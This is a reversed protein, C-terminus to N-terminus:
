SRRLRKKSLRCQLEELTPGALTIRKKDEEKLAKKVQEPTLASEQAYTRLLQDNELDDLDDVESYTPLLVKGAWSAVDLEAKGGEEPDGGVPLTVREGDDDSSDFDSAYTGSSSLEFSSSHACSTCNCTMESESRSRKRKSSTREPKFRNHSWLPWAGVIKALPLLVSQRLSEPAHYPDPPVLAVLCITITPHVMLTMRPLTNFDDADLILAEM